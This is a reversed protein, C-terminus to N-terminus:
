SIHISRLNTQPTASAGRRLYPYYDPCNAAFWRDLRALLDPLKNPQDPLTM